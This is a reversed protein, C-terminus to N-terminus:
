AAIALEGAEIRVHLRNEAPALPCHWRPDYACSPNYAFNFDLILEDGISGLDAGKITDLLYRGGGYTTDGATADRFPLFLGGGYGEVWYVALVATRGAIAPRVYGIRRLRTPGDHLLDVMLSEAAVDCDLRAQVRFAPNYAYYRLGAFGDRVAPDLASQTHDRFLADRVARFRYWALAPDPTARVAAYLATVRRRYDQLAIYDVMGFSWGIGVM